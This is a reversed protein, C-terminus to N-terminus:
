TDATQRSVTDSHFLIRDLACSNSIQCPFGEHCFLHHNKSAFLKYRFLKAVVSEREGEGKEREGEGEGRRGRGKERERERVGKEREGKERM